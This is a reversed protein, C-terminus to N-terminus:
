EREEVAADPVKTKPVNEENVERQLMELQDYIRKELAVFKDLNQEIDSFWEETGRPTYMNEFVGEWFIEVPHDDDLLISSVKVQSNRFHWSLENYDGDFSFRGMNSLWDRVKRPISLLLNRGMETRPM